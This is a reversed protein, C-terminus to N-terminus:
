KHYLAQINVWWYDKIAAICADYDADCETPPKKCRLFAAACIQEESM